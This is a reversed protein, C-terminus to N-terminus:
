GEVKEAEALAEEVVGQGWEQMREVAAEFGYVCGAYGDCHYERDELGCFLGKEWDGTLEIQPEDIPGAAILSCAKRLKDHSARLTDHQTALADFSTRLVNARLIGNPIM